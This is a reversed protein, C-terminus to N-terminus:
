WESVWTLVLHSPLCTATATWVLMDGFHCPPGKFQEKVSACASDYWIPGGDATREGGRMAQQRIGIFNKLALWMQPRWGAFRKQINCRMTPFVVALVLTRWVKNNSLFRPHHHHHHNCVMRKGNEQWERVMRENNGLWESVLNLVLRPRLWKATAPQEM